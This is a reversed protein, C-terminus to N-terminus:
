FTHCPFGLEVENVACLPLSRMGFGMQIILCRLTAVIGSRDVFSAAPLCRMMTAVDRCVDSRTSM